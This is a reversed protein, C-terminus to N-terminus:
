HLRLRGIKQAGSDIFWINGDPGATVDNPSRHAAYVPYETFVGDTTMRGIAGYGEAVWLAGDPGATIANIYRSCGGNYTCGPVPMYIPYQEIIGGPKITGIADNQTFWINGDPGKTLYNVFYYTYRSLMVGTTSFHIIGNNSSAYWANGSSDVALTGAWSPNNITTPFQTVKGTPTVYGVTFQQGSNTTAFWVNGSPSYALMDVKSLSGFLQTNVAYTAYTGSASRHVILSSTSDLAWPTGDGGLVLDYPDHGFSYETSQGTTTIQAIRHTRETYWLVPATATSSHWDIAYPIADPTVTDFLTILTNLPPPTSGSTTVRRLAVKNNNVDNDLVYLLSSGPILTIALPQDFQANLGAGDTNQPLGNGALTTVAFSRDIKRISNNFRDAVYLSGDTSNAVLGSPAAFLAGTGQGERQLGDCQSPLGLSTLCQGSITTVAGATTIRQVLNQAPSALYLNTDYGNYALGYATQYPNGTGIGTSITTVVGATTVKRIRTADAVYLNGDHSDYAIGSPNVFSAAAGTGNQSGSTTGGALTSVVGASSISFVSPNSGSQGQQSTVYLSKSAHAYAIANATSVPLTAFVSVAGSSPLLRLVIVNTLNKDLVYLNGDDADYTLAIPSQLAASVTQVSGLYSTVTNGRRPTDIVTAERVAHRLVSYSNGEVAPPASKQGACGGAIAACLAIGVVRFKM